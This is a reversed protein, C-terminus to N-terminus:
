FLLILVNFEFTSVRGTTSVGYCSNDKQSVQAAVKVTEEDLGGDVQINVHPAKERIAKVKPIMDQM